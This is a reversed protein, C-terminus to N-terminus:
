TLIEEFDGYITEVLEAAEANLGDLEVHLDSRNSKMLHGGATQHNPRAHAITGEIRQLPGHHRSEQNLQSRWGTTPTKSPLKGSLSRKIRPSSIM